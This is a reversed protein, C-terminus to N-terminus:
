IRNRHVSNIPHFRSQFFQILVVPIITDKTDYDYMNYRFHIKSYDILCNDSKIFHEM